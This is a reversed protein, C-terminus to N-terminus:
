FHHSFPSPYSFAGHGRHTGSGALAAAARSLIDSREADTLGAPQAAQPAPAESEAVQLSMVLPSTAIATLSGLSALFNLM